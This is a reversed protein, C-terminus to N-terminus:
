IGVSTDDSLRRRRQLRTRCLASPEKRENKYSASTKAKLFAEFFPQFVWKQAGGAVSCLPPAAPLSFDITPLLNSPPLTSFAAKNKKLKPNFHTKKKLFFNLMKNLM